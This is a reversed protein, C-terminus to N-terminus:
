TKMAFLMIKKCTLEVYLRFPTNGFAILRYVIEGGGGFLFCTHVLHSYMYIHILFMFCVGQRGELVVDMFVIGKGMKHM